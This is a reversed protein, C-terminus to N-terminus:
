EKEHIAGQMARRREEIIQSRIQQLARPSGWVASSLETGKLDKSLLSLQGIQSGILLLGASIGTFSVIEHIYLLDMFAVSFGAFGFSLLVAGALFPRRVSVASVTDLIFSDRHTTVANDEVKVHGFIM